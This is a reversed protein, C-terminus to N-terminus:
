RGLLGRVARDVSDVSSRALSAAKIIEDVQSLIDPDTVDAELLDRKLTEARSDITRIQQTAFSLTTTNAM